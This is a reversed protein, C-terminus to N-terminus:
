VSLKDWNERAVPKKQPFSLFYKVWIGHRFWEFSSQDYYSCCSSWFWESIHSQLQRFINKKLNVILVDGGTWFFITFIADKTTWTWCLNCWVGIHISIDPIQWKHCAIADQLTFTEKFYSSEHIGHNFKKPYIFFICILLWCQLEVCFLFWNKANKSILVIKGSKQKCHKM